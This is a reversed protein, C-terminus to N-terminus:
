KGKKLKNLDSQQKSLAKQLKDVQIKLADIQQQESSRPVTVTYTKQPNSGTATAAFSQPIYSSKRVTIFADNKLSLVKTATDIDFDNLNPSVASDIKDEVRKIRVNRQDDNADKITAKYVLADIRISDRQAKATLQATSLAKQAKSKFACFIFLTIVLYKM